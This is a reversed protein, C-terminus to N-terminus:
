KPYWLVVNIQILHIDASDIFCIPDEKVKKEINDWSIINWVLVEDSESAFRYM